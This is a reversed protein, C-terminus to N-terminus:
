VSVTIFLGVSKMTKVEEIIETNKKVITSLVM